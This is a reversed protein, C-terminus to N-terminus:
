LWLFKLLWHVLFAPRVIAKLFAIVWIRFSTAPWIFYIAAWVFWLFYIWWCHCKKHHRFMKKEMKENIRGNIGEIKEKMREKIREEIEEKFDPKVEMKTVKKIPKKTITPM